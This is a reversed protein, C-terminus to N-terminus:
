SLSGYIFYLEKGSLQANMLDSYEFTGNPAHQKMSILALLMFISGLFTYIFFKITVKIKDTGGWIASIFYIPILTIEWFMYFLLGDYATFVGLLGFQMLSILAYFSNPKSSYQSVSSLIILPVLINTLLILFINLGSAKFSLSAGISPLWAENFSIPGSSLFTTLVYISLGLPLLSLVFAIKGSHESKILYLIFAIVLHLILLTLLM